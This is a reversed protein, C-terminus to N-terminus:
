IYHLRVRNRCVLADGDYFSTEIVINGSLIETPLMDGEPAAEIVSSWTNTSNPIVFGFIFRWEEIVQEHLLVRQEVRFKEMKDRSSFNIDRAVARCKLIGKPIHAVLEQGWIDQDEWDESKWLQQGSYADAMSMWNIRLGHAAEAAM